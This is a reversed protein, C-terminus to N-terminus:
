RADGLLDGAVAGEPEGEVSGGPEEALAVGGAAEDEEGEGRDAQEAHGDESFDDGEDLLRKAVSASGLLNFCPSWPPCPSIRPSTAHALDSSTRVPHHADLWECSHM